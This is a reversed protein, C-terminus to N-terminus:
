AEVEPGYDRKSACAEARKIGRPPKAARRTLKSKKKSIAM